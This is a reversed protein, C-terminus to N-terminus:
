DAPEKQEQQHKIHAENAQKMGEGLLGLIGWMALGLCIVLVIGFLSCGCGMGFGANAADKIKM